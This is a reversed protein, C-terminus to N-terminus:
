KQTIQCRGDDKNEKEKEYIIDDKQKSKWIIKQSKLSLPNVLIHRNQQLHILNEYYVTHKKL